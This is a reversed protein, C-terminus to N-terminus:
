NSIKRVIIKNRYLRLGSIGWKAVLRGDGDGREETRGNNAKEIGWSEQGGGKTRAGCNGGVERVEEEGEGGGKRRESKIERPHLM